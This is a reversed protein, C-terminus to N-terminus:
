MVTSTNRRRFILLILVIGPAALLAPRPEPSEIEAYTSALIATAQVPQIRDFPSNSATIDSISAPINRISGSALLNTPDTSHSPDNPNQDWLAQFDTLIHGVEHALTDNVASNAVWAACSNGLCTSTGRNAASNNITAVYFVTIEPASDYTSSSIYPLIGSDNQVLNTSLSTDTETPLFDITISAQSYITAAFLLDRQINPTAIGVTGAIVPQIVIIQNAFVPLACVLGLVFAAAKSLSRNLSKTM